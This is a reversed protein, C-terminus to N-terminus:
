CCVWAEGRGFPLSKLKLKIAPVKSGCKECTGSWENPTGVPTPTWQANAVKLKEASVM